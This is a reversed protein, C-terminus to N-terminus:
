RKFACLAYDDKMAASSNKDTFVPGLKVAEAFLMTNLYKSEEIDIM